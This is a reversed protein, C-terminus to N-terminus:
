YFASIGAIGQAGVQLAQQLDSKALGGLAYVPMKCPASLDSFQRWGLPLVDPHSQTKQVPALVAFDVGVKEAWALEQRNHCSAALWQCNEPRQEAQMLDVSSLHIGNFGGPKSNISSNILCIAQAKQCQKLITSLLAEGPPQHLQKLRVQILRVGANIMLALRRLIEAEDGGELIAYQSPLLAAKIIAQNAAPFDHEYLFQPNVWKIQQGESGCALGDFDVVRWVDLFVHLDPYQYNIKILPQAQRVQIGLEEHLERSLAQRVNEDAEVKGGPFEWLDGQHAKKDRKAILIRGDADHIVGVAVHLAKQSLASAM